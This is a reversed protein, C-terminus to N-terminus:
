AITLRAMHAVRTAPSRFRVRYVMHLLSSVSEARNYGTASRQPQVKVGSRAAAILQVKRETWNMYAM